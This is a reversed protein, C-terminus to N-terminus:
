ADKSREGTFERTHVLAAAVAVTLVAFVALVAASSLIEGWAGGPAAAELITRGHRLVSLQGIQTPIRGIGVEVLAGYAIGLAVYRTTFAGFFFGFGAAAGVIFVQACVLRPVLPLLDPVGRAAAVAFAVALVLLYCGQLVATHAVYKFIVYAARPLPRTFVYDTATSKLDDRMTGGSSLLSLTPVLFLVYFSSAWEYFRGTLGRGSALYALLGVFAALGLLSLAQSPVLFNRVTLRWVGGLARSFRTYTSVTAAQNM